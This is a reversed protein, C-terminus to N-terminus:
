SAARQVRAGHPDINLPHIHWGNGVEAAISDAQAASTFALVAPGAGSIVAPVGMARLREVLAASAPMGPARYDQHLWDRTADLLTEAPLAGALAAVLLGVRGANAAADAHPVTKPLLGRARATSFRQAPVLVLPEIGVAMGLRAWRPGSANRWCITLGGALCPAVNDPHGEVEAALVFAAEDDLLHGDPHLERAAIIGAVTAAASAGLGRGHPIRNVCRLRLGPPWLRGPAWDTVTAGTPRVADGDAAGADTAEDPSRADPQDPPRREPEDLPRVGRGDQPRANREGGRTRAGREGGRTHAGRDDLPSAAPAGDLPRTHRDDPPRADHRDDPPRADRRDNLSHTGPADPYRFGAGARSGEGGGSETEREAARAAITRLATRMTRVILHDAGRAVDEVGEGEIDISLDHGTVEVEVEDYLALALGLADFGPGLNASTAPVIIRVPGTRWCVGGAPVEAGPRARGGRTQDQRAAEEDRMRKGDDHRAAEQARMRKGDNYRAKM